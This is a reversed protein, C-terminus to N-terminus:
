TDSDNARDENRTVIYIFLGGVLLTLVFAVILLIGVALGETEGWPQQPPPTTTLLLQIM